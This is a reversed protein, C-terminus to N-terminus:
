VSFKLKYRIQVEEWTTHCTHGYGCPLEVMCHNRRRSEDLQPHIDSKHMAPVPPPCAPISTNWCMSWQQRWLPFYMVRSLLKLLGEMGNPLLYECNYLSVDSIFDCASHSPSMKIRHWVYQIIIDQM